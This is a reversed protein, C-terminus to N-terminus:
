LQRGLLGLWSFSLVAAMWHRLIFSSEPVITLKLRLSVLPLLSYGTEVCFSVWFLSASTACVMTTTTGPLGNLRLSAIQDFSRVVSDIFMTTACHQASEIPFTQGQFLWDIGYLQLFVFLWFLFSPAFGPPQLLHHMFNFSVWQVSCAWKLSFHVSYFTCNMSTVVLYEVIHFPYRPLFETAFCRMLKFADSAGGLWAVSHLTPELCLFKRFFTTSYTSLTLTALGLVVSATNEIIKTGSFYLLM